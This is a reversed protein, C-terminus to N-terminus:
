QCTRLNVSNQKTFQRFNVFQQGGLEVRVLQVSYKTHDLSYKIAVTIQGALTKTRSYKWAQLDYAGGVLMTSSSRRSQRKVIYTHPAAVCICVPTLRRM